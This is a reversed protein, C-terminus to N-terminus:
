AEVDIWDGRAQMVCFERGASTELIARASANARLAAFARRIEANMACNFSTLKHPRNFLIAAIGDPVVCDLARVIM